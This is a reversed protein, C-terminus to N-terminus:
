KYKSVISLLEEGFQEYKKNGFGRCSLLENETTPKSLAICALLKDSAIVFPAVGLKKSLNSRFLKLEKFLQTEKIEILEENSKKEDNEKENLLMSDNSAIPEDSTSLHKLKAKKAARRKGRYSNAGVERSLKINEVSSLGREIDILGRTSVEIEENTNINKLTYTPYKKGNNAKGSSSIVKWEKDVITNIHRSRMRKKINDSDNVYYKKKYNYYVVLTNPNENDVVVDHKTYNSSMSEDGYLTNLLDQAYIVAGYEGNNERYLVFSTDGKNQELRLGVFYIRDRKTRVFSVYHFHNFDKVLKCAGISLHIEGNGISAYPTNEAQESSVDIEKWKSRENIEKKLYNFLVISTRYNNKSKLCAQYITDVFELVKDDDSVKSAYLELLSRLSLECEKRYHIPNPSNKGLYYLLKNIKRELPPLDNNYLIGRLKSVAKEIDEAMYPKEKKSLYSDYSLDLADKIQEVTYKDLHKIITRKLFESTLVQGIVSEFYSILEQQKDTLSPTHEEGTLLFDVSVNLCSALNPLITLDPNGRGQEWKSIARDTVFLLNALELQTLGKQIRLEKIREGLTM